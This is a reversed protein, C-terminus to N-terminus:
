KMKFNEYLYDKGKKTLVPSGVKTLELFILVRSIQPGLKKGVACKLLSELVEERERFVFYNARRFAQTIEQDTM